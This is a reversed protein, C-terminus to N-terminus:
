KYFSSKYVSKNERFDTVELILQHTKGFKFRKKDYTYSITNTKLDYEFMVWEGDITGNIHDIGSLDDTVKFKLRNPDVPNQTNKEVIPVIRPPITDVALTYNGLLKINGEVWGDDYRGTASLIKGSIPNIQALMVKDRLRAPLHEAKIRLKGPLHLPTLENHLQYVPSYFRALAPKMAYQFDIDTYLAGEPLSFRIGEDKIENHRNYKFWKGKKEGVPIDVRKSQLKFSLHSINGSVDAIEYRIDHLKEDNAEFIGQNQVDKYIPLKNGPELWTKYIRQGSRIALAYDM